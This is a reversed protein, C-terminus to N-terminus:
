AYMYMYLVACCLISVFANRHPVASSVLSSNRSSYNPVPAFAFSANLASIRSTCTTPNYFPCSSCHTGRCGCHCCQPGDRYTPKIVSADSESPKTCHMPTPQAPTSSSCMVLILIHIFKAAASPHKASSASAISPPLDTCSREHVLGKIINRACTGSREGWRLKWSHNRKPGPRLRPGFDSRFSPSPPLPRRRPNM